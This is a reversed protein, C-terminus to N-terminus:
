APQEQKKPSLADKIKAAIEDTGMRRSDLASQDRIISPIDEDCANGALVPIIPLAAEWSRGAAVGIEFNVRASSASEPTVVVVVAHADSLAQDIEEQSNAGASIHSDDWYRMGRANLSPLLSRVLKNAQEDSHPYSIFVDIPGTQAM